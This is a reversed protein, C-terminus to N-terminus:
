GAMASAAADYVIRGGVATLVTEPPKEAWNAAFSDRDFMVLDGIRGPELIGVGIRDLQLCRAADVTYARIAEEVTLNQEIGFPEGDLTLGTVAARIGLLPDPSVVPWDSGFALKAGADLLSRFAFTGALRAEGLRRRVYRCDDAKHLPQMSAIVGRFRHFDAPDIQQAHEIRPRPDVGKRGAADQNVAEVAELALRAAEDGIAHMSPSLGAQAVAKAWEILHGDHAIEVLMGRDGPADAYDALMRATRSGLTGDIFAKYGIVALASDGPFGRGIEFPMPWGRDLLTVRCRLTLRDRMPQYANLLDEAYEMSGVATVGLSHLHAQARLLHQRRTAVDPEPILPNVLQWLAAEVMLGSPEGTTSNRGIAGGPPDADPLDIKALVADNVVGMHMDMRLCVVPRGGGNGGGSAGREASRLWEKTPLEGGPWNEQSWGWALLWQERPLEAHRRAIAREFEERSRVGSLDLRDLTKGGSLLHLHSDILGPTVVRGGADIRPVAPRSPPPGDLAAIIGGRITISEAWPRSSAGTWIRANDIHLDGPM